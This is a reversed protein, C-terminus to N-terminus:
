VLNHGLKTISFICVYINPYSPLLSNLKVLRVILSVIILLCIELFECCCSLFTDLSFYFDCLFLKLM